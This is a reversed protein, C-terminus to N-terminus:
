TKLCKLARHDAVCGGFRGSIHWQTSGKQSTRDVLVRLPGRTVLCYGATWDGVVVPFTGWDPDTAGVVYAVGSPDVAIGTGYQTGPDGIYGCYDLETGAANVRAVFADSEGNHTLDPGIKVPFTM